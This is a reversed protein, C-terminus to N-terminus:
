DCTMELILGPRKEMSQNQAAEISTTAVNGEASAFLAAMYSGFLAVNSAATTFRAM